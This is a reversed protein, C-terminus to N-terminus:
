MGTCFNIELVVDKLIDFVSVVYPTEDGLHKYGFYSKQWLSILFCEVVSFFRRRVPCDPLSYLSRDFLIKSVVISTLDPNDINVHSLEDLVRQAQVEEMAELNM